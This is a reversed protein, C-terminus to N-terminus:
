HLTRVENVCHAIHAEISPRNDNIDVLNVCFSITASCPDASPVGALCPSGDRATLELHHEGISERDLIALTHIHVQYLTSGDDVTTMEVIRVAFTAPAGLYSFLMNSVLEM